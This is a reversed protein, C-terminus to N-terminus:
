NSNYNRIVDSIFMRLARMNKVFSSPKHRVREKYSRKNNDNFIDGFMIYIVFYFIGNFNCKKM